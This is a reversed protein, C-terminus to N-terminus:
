HLWSAMLAEKATLAHQQSTNVKTDALIGPARETSSSELQTAGLVAQYRPNKRRRLLPDVNEKAKRKDCMHKCFGNEKDSM